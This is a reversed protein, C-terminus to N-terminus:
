VSIDAISSDKIEGNQENWWIARTRTGGKSHVGTKERLPLHVDTTNPNKKKNKKKKKQKKNLFEDAEKLKWGVGNEGEKEEASM